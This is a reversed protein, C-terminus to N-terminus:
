TESISRKSRTAYLRRMFALMYKQDVINVWKPHQYNHKFPFQCGKKLLYNATWGNKSYLFECCPLLRGLEDTAEIGSEDDVDGILNCSCGRPVCDDCYYEFDRPMYEWTAMKANCFDCRVKVISRM